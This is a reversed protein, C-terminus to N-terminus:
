VEGLQSTKLVCRRPLPVAWWGSVLSYVLCSLGLPVPLVDAAWGIQCTALQLVRLCLLLAWLGLAGRYLLM